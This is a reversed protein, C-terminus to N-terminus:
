SKARSTSVLGILNGESARVFAIWEETGAVGLRGDAHTFILHPEFEIPVGAARLRAVEGVVDDVSFYITSSSGGQELLLRTDSVNFFALGTSGVPCPTSRMCRAALLRVSAMM